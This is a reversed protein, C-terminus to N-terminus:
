GYNQITGGVVYNPMRGVPELTVNRSFFISTTWPFYNIPGFGTFDIQIFNSERFRKSIEPYWDSNDLVIIGGPALKSIAYGSCKVREDGDIIIVDFKNDYDNIKKVYQEATEELEIIQNKRKASSIREYWARDSEISIIKKCRDAWYLSGNGCSYEFVVKNQWNIENLYDIAPYTYWPLPNDNIDIPLGKKFSRQHGYRKEIIELLQYMKKASVRYTLLLIKVYLMVKGVIKRILRM